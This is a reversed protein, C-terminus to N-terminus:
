ARTCIIVNVANTLTKSTRLTALLLGAVSSNALPRDYGEFRVRREKVPPMAKMRFASFANCEEGTVVTERKRNHDGFVCVSMLLLVAVRQMGNNLQDM